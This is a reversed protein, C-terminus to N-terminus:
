DNKRPVYVEIPMIRGMWCNAPLTATLTYNKKIGAMMDDPFPDLGTTIMGFYKNDLKQLFATKDIRYNVPWAALGFTAYEYESIGGNVVFVGITRGGFFHKNASGAYMKGLTSYYNEMVYRAPELRNNLKKLVPAIAEAASTGYLMMCSLLVVASAKTIMGHETKGTEQEILGMIFQGCSVIMAIWLTFVYNLGGFNNGLMYGLLPVSVIVFVNWSSIKRKIFINYALALATIITIVWEAKLFSTLRAKGFGFNTPIVDRLYFVTSNLFSFNNTIELYLCMVGSLVGFVLAYRLLYKFDRETIILAAFVSVAAIVAQQKTFLALFTMVASLDLYVTKREDIFMQMFYISLATFLAFLANVSFHMEEVLIGDKMLVLSLTLALAAFVGTKSKGARFSLFVVVFVGILSILSVRRGLAMNFGLINSLLAAAYYFVPTYINIISGKNWDSYLPLHHIVRAVLSLEDGDTPEWDFPFNCVHVAYTIFYYFVLLCLGILMATVANILVDYM